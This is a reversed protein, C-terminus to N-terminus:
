ERSVGNWSITRHGPSQLHRVSGRQQLTPLFSIASTQRPRQQDPAQRSGTRQCQRPRWRHRHPKGHTAWRQGRCGHRRHRRHWPGARGLESPAKAPPPPTEQTALLVDCRREAPRHQAHARQSGRRPKATSCGGPQQKRREREIRWCM